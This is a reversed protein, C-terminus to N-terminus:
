HRQKRSKVRKEVAIKLASVLNSTSRAHVMISEQEEDNLLGADRAEYLQSRLEACSSRAMGLYRNFEAATNSEFGEAINSMVSRAARVLQDALSLERRWTAGLVLSRVITVLKRAQQWARLEEFTSVGSMSEDNCKKRGVVADRHHPWTGSFAAAERLEGNEAGQV